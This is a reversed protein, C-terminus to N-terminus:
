LSEYVWGCRHCFPIEGRPAKGKSPKVLRSKNRKARISHCEGPGQSPLTNNRLTSLLAKEIWWPSRALHLRLTSRGLTLHYIKNTWTWLIWFVFCFFFTDIYSLFVFVFFALCVKGSDLYYPSSPVPCLLDLTVTSQQSIASFTLISM